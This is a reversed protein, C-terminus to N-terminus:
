NSLGLVVSVRRNKARGIETENSSVPESSGHGKIVIFREAPFSSSSQTQLWSKVAQARAQSLNLNNDADGTNDTHGHIEIALEDAVLLGNKLENLQGIADPTFTARGTDFNISWSRKSVVNNIPAGTFTPRTAAGSANAKQAIAQIFSTNLISEVPPYSSLLKPYQQKVINGFITYTAAFINASGPVLGYLVLNDNLNNAMSGGLSVMVGTKDPEVVGKYYKEWYAPTEEKYIAASAEAARRLATPYSKVQDGGELMAALLGEVTSRNDANWKKIGIITNPMQNSYEKTSVISVLGGRQKAVSVDVPTWSTVADVCVHKTEGTRKGNNVVPRDECANQIYKNGAEVFDNTALWNIANSDYTKEDPNVLINNDGAWKMVINYDGDRLFAAVLGGRALKPNAKWADPGMFKDEGKSFGASGIVEAMYEPGLKELEPRIGELFSSSGDGMVAVFHVGETPQPNSKLAKAFSILETQMKNTDDERILNLNVKHAEMLSGSTTIPGGNAFNLGMQSNWAMIKYRVQPGPVSAPTTSPLAIAPVNSPTSSTGVAPADPLSAQLPVVSKSDSPSLLGNSHAVKLGVGAGITGVLFLIPTWKIRSKMAM